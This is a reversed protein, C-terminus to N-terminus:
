RMPVAPFTGGYELLRLYVQDFHHQPLMASQARFLSRLYVADCRGDSVILPTRSDFPRQEGDDIAAHSFGDRHSWLLVRERHGKDYCLQFSEVRESETVFLYLDMETSNYWIRILGGESRRTNHPERLM